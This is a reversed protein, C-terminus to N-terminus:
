FRFMNSSKTYLNPNYIFMVLDFGNKEVYDSLTSIKFHRLDIVEFNKFTLALFPNVANAFSDKVVLVKKDSLKLGDSTNEFIYHAQDGNLCAGYRNLVRPDTGELYRQAYMINYFGGMSVTHIGNMDNTFRFRSSFNPYILTFDDIGVVPGAFENGLHAVYFNERTEFTYNNKDTLFGDPDVDSWKLENKLYKVIETYGWFAAETTWHHDTRYFIDEPNMADLITDRLDLTRIGAAEIGSLFNDANANAYDEKGEPLVTYGEIVKFPTQVYLLEAGSDGCVDKLKTMNKIYTELQSSEEYVVQLMRNSDKFPVSSHDTDEKFSNHEIDDSKHFPLNEGRPDLLTICIDSGTNERVLSIVTERDGCNRVDVAVIKSFSDALSALLSMDDLNHVVVASLGYEGKYNNYIETNAANTVTATMADDRLIFDTVDAYGAAQAEAHSATDVICETYLGEGFSGNESGYFRLRYGADSVPAYMIYDERPIPDSVNKIGIDSARITIGNYTYKGGEGELASPAGGSIVAKEYYGEASNVTGDTLLDYLTPLASTIERCIKMAGDANFSEAYKYYYLDPEDEFLATLDLTDIIERELFADFETYDFSKGGYSEAKTPLKVYLMPMGMNCLTHYLNRVDTFYQEDIENLTADYLAGSKAAEVKPKGIMDSGSSCGVAGFVASALTSICLVATLIRKLM